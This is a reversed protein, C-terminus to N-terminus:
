SLLGVVFDAADREAMGVADVPFIDADGFAIEGVVVTLDPLPHLRMHDASGDRQQAARVADVALTEELLVGAGADGGLMQM